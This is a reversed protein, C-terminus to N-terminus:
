ASGRRIVICSSCSVRSVENPAYLVGNRSPIEKISFRDPSSLTEMVLKLWADFFMEAWVVGKIGFTQRFQRLFGFATTFTIFHFLITSTATRLRSARASSRLLQFDALLLFGKHLSQAPLLNFGM